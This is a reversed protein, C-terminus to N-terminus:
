YSITLVRPNMNNMRIDHRKSYVRFLSCRYMRLYRKESCKYFLCYYYDLKCLSYQLTSAYDNVDCVSIHVRVCIYVSRTM